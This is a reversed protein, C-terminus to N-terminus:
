KPASALQGGYLLPTSIQQPIIKVTVRQANEADYPFEDLGTLRQFLARNFQGDPDDSMEAVGRIEIYRTFDNPCIICMTILPNVLLNQYKVRSKLTSFRVFEGDWDFSVPTTSILGDLHRLTSVTAQFGQMIELHSEPIVPSGQKIKPM